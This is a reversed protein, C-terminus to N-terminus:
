PHAQGVKRYLTLQVVVVTGSPTISNGKGKVNGKRKWNMLKRFLINLFIAYM